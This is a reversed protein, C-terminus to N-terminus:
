PTPPSPPDFRFGGFLNPSTTAPTSGFSFSPPLSSQLPPVPKFAFPDLRRSELDPRDPNSVPNFLGATGFGGGGFGNAGFTQVPPNLKHELDRIRRELIETRAALLEFRVQLLAMANDPTAM